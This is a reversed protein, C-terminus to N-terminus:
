NIRYKWNLQINDFFTVDKKVKKKGQFIFEGQLKIFGWHFGGASKM